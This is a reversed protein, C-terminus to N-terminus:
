LGRPLQSPSIAVYKCSAAPAAIGVRFPVYSIFGISGLKHYRGTGPRIVFYPTRILGGDDRGEM